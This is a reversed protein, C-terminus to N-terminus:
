EAGRFRALYVVMTDDLLQEVTRNHEQTLEKLRQTFNEPVVVSLTCGKLKGWEDILPERKVYWCLEALIATVRAKQRARWRAQMRRNTAAKKALDVPM